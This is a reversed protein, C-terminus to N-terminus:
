FSYLSNAKALESEYWAQSAGFPDPDKQIKLKSELAVAQEALLNVLKDFDAQKEETTLKAIRDQNAQLEIEEIQIGTLDKPLIGTAPITVDVMSIKNLEWRTGKIWFEVGIFNPAKKTTATGTESQTFSLCENETLAKFEVLILDQKEASVLFEGKKPKFYVADTGFLKTREKELDPLLEGLEVEKVKHQRGYDLFEQYSLDSKVKDGKLLFEHSKKLCERGAIVIPRIENSKSEVDVGIQTKALLIAVKKKTEEPDIAAIGFGTVINLGNSETTLITKM